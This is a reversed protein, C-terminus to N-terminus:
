ESPEFYEPWEEPTAITLLMALDATDQDGARDARLMIECLDVRADQAEPAIRDLIM